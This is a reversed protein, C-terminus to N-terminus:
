LCQWVDMGTVEADLETWTQHDHLLHQLTLVHLISRVLCNAIQYAPINQREARQSSVFEGFGVTSELFTWGEIAPYLSVAECAVLLVAVFLIITIQYVSLKWEKNRPSGSAAVDLGRQAAKRRHCWSLLLTLSAIVGQLFRNFFQMTASCGVLWGM